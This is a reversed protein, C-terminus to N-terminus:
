IHFVETDAADLKLESVEKLNMKKERRRQFDPNPSMTPTAGTDHVMLIDKGSLSSRTSSVKSAQGSEFEGFESQADESSTSSPLKATSDSGSALTDVSSASSLSVSSFTGSSIASVATSSSSQSENQGHGYIHGNAKRQHQKQPASGLRFPIANSQEPTKDTAVDAANVQVISELGAAILRSVGQVGEKIGEFVVAAGPTTAAPSLVGSLPFNPTTHSQSQSPSPSSPLLLSGNPSTSLMNADGPSLSKGFGRNVIREWKQKLGLLEAEHVALQSRLELCKSEKQAIFHLLEAHKEALTVPPKDADDLAPEVDWSDWDYDWNESEPHQFHEPEHVELLENIPPEVFAAVPSGDDSDFGQWEEGNAADLDNDDYYKTQSPTKNEPIKQIDM